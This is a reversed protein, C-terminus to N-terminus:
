NNDQIFKLKERVENEMKAINHLKRNTFPTYNSVMTTDINDINNNLNDISDTTNNDIQISM